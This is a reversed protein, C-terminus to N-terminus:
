AAHSGHQAPPIALSPLPKPSVWSRVVPYAGKFYADCHHASAYEPCESLLEHVGRLNALPVRPFLHHTLHYNDQHPHLLFSLANDPLNRTYGTVTGPILGIHDSVEAFVKIAHYVTVRALMWLGAFSLAALPGALVALTSLVVTWWLLVKFGQAFSMRALDGFLSKRFLAKDFLFARYVHWSNRSPKGDADRPMSLFDPDKAPFGLHGHHLLHDGRYLEYIEFMPLAFMLSAVRRNAERGKLMNGHAADHLSNGMARQRSGILVLAPFLWLPSVYFCLAWAGFVLGWAELIRLVVVSSRPEQLSQFREARGAEMLFARFHRIDAVGLRSPARLDWRDETESADM